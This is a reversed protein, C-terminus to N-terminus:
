ITCVEITRAPKNWRLYFMNSFAVGFPRFHANPDDEDPVPFLAAISDTVVQLLLLVKAVRVPFSRAM